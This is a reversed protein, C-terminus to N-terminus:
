VPEEQQDLLRELKDELVAPDYPVVVYDKAGAAHAREVQALDSEYSLVIVPVGSTREDNSLRNTLEIGTMDPLTLNMLIADPLQQELAALAMEGTSVTQVEHGLLELRFGTVEALVPEEEVLLIRLPYATM